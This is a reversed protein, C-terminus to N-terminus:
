AGRRTGAGQEGADRVGSVRAPALERAPDDRRADVAVAAELSPRGAREGVQAHEHRGGRHAPERQDDRAAPVLLRHERRPALFGPQHEVARQEGRRRHERQDREGGPSERAALARERAAPPAVLRHDLVARIRQDQRARGQAADEVRAGRDLAQEAEGHVLQAAGLHHIEDMGLLAVGREPQAGLQHARGALDRDVLHAHPVLVARVAPDLERALVQQSSGLTRATTNLKRSM